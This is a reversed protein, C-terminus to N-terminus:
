FPVHDELGGHNHEMNIKLPTVLHAQIVQNKVHDTSGNPNPGFPHHTGVEMNPSLALCLGNEREVNTHSLHRLFKIPSFFGHVKRDYVVSFNWM